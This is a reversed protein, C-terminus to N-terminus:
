RRAVSADSGRWVSKIITGLASIVRIAADRESVHTEQM